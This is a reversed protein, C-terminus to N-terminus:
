KQLHIEAGAIIGSLRRSKASACGAMQTAVISAFGQQDSCVRIEASEGPRLKGKFVLKAGCVADVIRVKRIGESGNLVFVSIEDNVVAAIQGFLVVIVAPLVLVKLM